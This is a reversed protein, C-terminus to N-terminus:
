SNGWLLGKVFGTFGSPKKEVKHELSPPEIHNLALDFFLPKAPIPQYDPPLPALIPKHSPPLLVFQDLRETLPKSALSMDAMKEELHQEEVISTVHVECKKGRITAQLKHLDPISKDIKTAEVGSHELVRYQEIAQIVHDSARDFLAIAEPWKKMVVYSEALHFCRHAKFAFVRATNQKQSAHDEALGPVEGLDSIHQLLIDYVRVFEEPKVVRDGDRMGVILSLNRNLAHNLKVHSLYDVLLRLSSRQAESKASRKKEAVTQESSLEERTVQLADQCEMLLREYVEMKDGGSVLEGEVQQLRVLSVRVKESRVPVKQGLWTVETLSSAAKEQTKALVLDIKSALIDSGAADTKLKQLEKVDTPLDGINYACYRISPSMEEVRGTYQQKQEESVAGGLKQYITRIDTIKDVTIHKKQFRNRHNQTFGLSKRIRKLRRSCYMRYRQYDGHRLGHQNQAEKILPLIELCFDPEHLVESAEAELEAGAGTETVAESLHAESVNVSM